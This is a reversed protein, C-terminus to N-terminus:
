WSLDRRRYYPQRTGLLFILIMGAIFGGV